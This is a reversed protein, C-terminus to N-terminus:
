FNNTEHDSGERHNDKTWGLPSPDFVVLHNVSRAQLFPVHRNGTKVGWWILGFPALLGVGIVTLWQLSETVTSATSLSVYGLVELGVVFPSTIQSLWYAFRDGPTSLSSLGKEAKERPDVLSTM